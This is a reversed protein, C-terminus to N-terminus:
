LTGAGKDRDGRADHRSVPGSGSFSNLRVAYGQLSGCGIEYSDSSRDSMWQSSLWIDREDNDSGSPYKSTAHNMVLQVPNIVVDYM